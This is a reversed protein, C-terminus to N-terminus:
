VIFCIIVFYVLQEYFAEFNEMVLGELVYWFEPAQDLFEHLMQCGQAM